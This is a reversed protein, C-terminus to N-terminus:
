GGTGTRIKEIRLTASMMSTSIWDKDTRDPVWFQKRDLSLAPVRNREACLKSISDPLVKRICPFRM